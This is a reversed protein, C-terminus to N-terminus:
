VALLNRSTNCRLAAVENVFLMVFNTRNNDMCVIVLIDADFLRLAHM